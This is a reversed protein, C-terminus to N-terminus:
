AEIIDVRNAIPQYEMASSCYLIARNDCGAPPHERYRAKPGVQNGGGTFRVRRHITNSKIAHVEALIYRSSRHSSDDDLM